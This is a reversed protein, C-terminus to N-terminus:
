QGQTPSKNSPSSVDRQHPPKYAAAGKALAESVFGDLFSLSSDVELDECSADLPLVEQMVSMDQSLEVLETCRQLLSPTLYCQRPPPPPCILKLLAKEDIKSKEFFDGNRCFVM